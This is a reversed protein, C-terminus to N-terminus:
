HRRRRVQQSRAEELAKELGRMLSNRKRRPKTENARKASKPKERRELVDKKSLADCVRRCDDLQFEGEFEM